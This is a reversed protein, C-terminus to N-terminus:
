KVSQAQGEAPNWDSALGRGYRYMEDGAHQTFEVPLRDSQLGLVEVCVEVLAKGLEARQEPPRGRRIDCMLLAGPEPEGEGCHWMSGEPLERITVSVINPKTEMVRAFTEGMRRALERKVEVSYQRPVDLQLYPM